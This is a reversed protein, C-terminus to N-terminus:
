ENVKVQGVVFLCAWNWGGNEEEKARVNLLMPAVREVTVYCSVHVGHGGRAPNPHVDLREGGRASLFRSGLLVVVLDVGSESSSSSVVDDSFLGVVVVVM